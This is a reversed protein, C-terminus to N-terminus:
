LIDLSEHAPEVRALLRKATTFQPEGYGGDTYSHLDAVLAPTDIPVPQLAWSSRRWAKHGSRSVLWVTGSPGWRFTIPRATM